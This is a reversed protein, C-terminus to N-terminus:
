NDMTTGAGDMYKESRSNFIRLIRKRGVIKTSENIQNNLVESTSGDVTISLDAQLSLRNRQGIGSIAIISILIVALTIVAIQMIRNVSKKLKNTM